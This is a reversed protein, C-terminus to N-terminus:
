RSSCYGASWCSCHLVGCWVGSVVSALMMPGNTLMRRTRRRYKVVALCRYYASRSM